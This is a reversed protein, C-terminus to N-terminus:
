PYNEKSASNFEEHDGGQVCITGMALKLGTSKIINYDFSCQLMVFIFFEYLKTCSDVLDKSLSLIVPLSSHYIHFSTVIYGIFFSHVLKIYYM